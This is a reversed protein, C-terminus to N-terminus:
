IEEYKKEGIMKGKGKHKKRDKKIEQIEEM